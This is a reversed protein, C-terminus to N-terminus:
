SNTAAPRLTQNRLPWTLTQHFHEPNPYSAPNDLGIHDPVRTPQYIFTGFVIDWLPTVSGYNGRDNASHHYRHTEAGILV